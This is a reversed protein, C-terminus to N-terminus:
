LNVSSNGSAGHLTWWGQIHSGSSSTIGLFIKVLFLKVTWFIKGLDAAHVTRKYVNQTHTKTHTHVHMYVTVYHSHFIFM